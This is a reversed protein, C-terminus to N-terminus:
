SSNRRKQAFEQKVASKWTKMEKVNESEVRTKTGFVLTRKERTQM